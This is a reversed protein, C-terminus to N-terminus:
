LWRYIQLSLMVGLVGFPYTMGFAIVPQDAARLRNGRLVEQAAALAPANTLSGSFLGALAPGDLAFWGAMAVALMAGWVLMAVSFFNERRGERRRPNRFSPGFQIGISYIFLILGVTSVISPLAVDRGMAGVALGTFLVGAVGLRFGFIRVQGILYGIGIVAFLTVVPFQSLFDTISAPM